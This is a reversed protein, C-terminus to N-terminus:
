RRRPRQGHAASRSRTAGEALGDRDAPAVFSRLEMITRALAVAEEDTMLDASVAATGRPDGDGHREFAERIEVFLAREDSDAFDDAQLRLLDGVYAAALRDQLSAVGTALTYAAGNLKEVVYSPRPM